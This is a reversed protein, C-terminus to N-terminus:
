DKTLHKEYVYRQEIEGNPTIATRYITLVRGGEDLQWQDVTKIEAGQVTTKAKVHLAPGRWASVSIARNGRITNEAEKGTLDLTFGSTSVGRGDLLTSEVALRTKDQRVKMTLSQPPTGSGFDSKAVALTWSGSFDAGALVAGCLTLM